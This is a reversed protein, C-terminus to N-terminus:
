MTSSSTLDKSTMIDIFMTANMVNNNLNTYNLDKLTLMIVVVLFGFHFM